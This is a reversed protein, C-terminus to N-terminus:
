SCHCSSTGHRNVMRCNIHTDVHVQSRRLSLLAWWIVLGVRSTRGGPRKRSARSSGALGWVACKERTQGARRGALAAERLARHSTLLM